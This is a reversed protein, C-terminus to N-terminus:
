INLVEVMPMGLPKNTPPITESPSTGNAIFIIYEPLASSPAFTDKEGIIKTPPAIKVNKVANMPLIFGAFIAALIEGM